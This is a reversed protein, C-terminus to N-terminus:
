TIQFQTILTNDDPNNTDSSAYIPREVTTWAGITNTARLHDLYDDFGFEAFHASNIGVIFNARPAAIRILEHLPEPGLHGHTFTGASVVVDYTNDALNLKETLDAEMLAVYVPANDFTKLRARGLMEASLDIGHITRLGRAMLAQGVLGTGCGVDLVLPHSSEPDVHRIVEDAVQDHYVYGKTDAFGSDYTDAWQAYLRRNDDPTAVAYAEDLGLEESQEGGTTTLTTEEDV